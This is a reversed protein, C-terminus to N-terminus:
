VQRVGSPARAGGGSPRLRRAAAKATRAALVLSPVPDDAQFVTFSQPHALSRLWDRTSLEGAQRYSRFAKLDRRPLWQCLGDPFRSPIEVRQGLARRYAIWPLDLGAKRELADSATLRPNSEVIRLAGRREDWKFEVNCIGRLGLGRCVALGLEAVEPQWETVHFSGEGFHIPYQRPKRKTFHFLPEGDELLYTYYSCYGADPGVIVETALMEIGAEVLPGVLEDLGALDAVVAGKPRALWMATLEPRSGLARWFRHSSVPKVAFPFELTAAAKEIGAPESIRVTEPADIGLARVAAYTSEKDLATLLGAPDSEIPRCGAAVLQDASRALLELGVDNCPFVVAGSGEAVLTELWWRSPEADAPTDLYRRCHRSRSVPWGEGRHDLVRVEVNRSGLSRAASLTNLRGGLLYVPPRPETPRAM